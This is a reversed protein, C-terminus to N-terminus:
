GALMAAAVIARPWAYAEVGAFTVAHMPLTVDLSPQPEVDLGPAGAAVIALAPTAGAAAVVAFRDVEDAHEVAVKRGDLGTLGM